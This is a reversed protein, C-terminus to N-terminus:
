LSGDFEERNMIDNMQDMAKRMAYYMDQNASGLSRFDYTIEDIIRCYKVFETCSCKPKIRELKKEYIDVVRDFDSWADSRYNESKEKINIPSSLDVKPISIGFRKELKSLAELYRLNKFKAFLGIGDLRDRCKFCYFHSGNSGSPSYYRAAPTKTNDHFPCFLQTSTEEDALEVGNEVLAQFAGYHKSVAKVRKNVWEKESETFAM